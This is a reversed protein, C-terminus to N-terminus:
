ITPHLLRSPREVEQEQRSIIVLRELMQGLLWFRAKNVDWFIQSAVPIGKWISDGEPRWEFARRITQKTLKM